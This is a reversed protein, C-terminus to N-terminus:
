GGRQVSVHDISTLISTTDGYMVPKKQELHDAVYYVSTSLPSRVRWYVAAYADALCAMWWAYSM